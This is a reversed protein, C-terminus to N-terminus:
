ASGAVRPLPLALSGRRAKDSDLNVIEGNIPAVLSKNPAKNNGPPGGKPDGKKGM